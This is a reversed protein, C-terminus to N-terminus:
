RSQLIETDIMLVRNSQFVTKSGKRASFVHSQLPSSYFYCDIYFADSNNLLAHFRVM